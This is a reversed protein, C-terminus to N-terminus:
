AAYVPMPFSFETGKNVISQVRIKSGHLELIRKTIALGLGSSQGALKTISVVNNKNDHSNTRSKDVRYFRDFIHKLEDEPIGHGNDAVRM